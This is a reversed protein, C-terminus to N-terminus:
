GSGSDTIGLGAQQGRCVISHGLPLYLLMEMLVRPQDIRVVAKVVVLVVIIVVVTMIINSINTNNKNNNICYMYVTNCHHLTTCQM